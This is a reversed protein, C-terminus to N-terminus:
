PRFVAELQIAVRVDYSARALRAPEFVLNRFLADMAYWTKRDSTPFRALATYRSAPHRGSTRGLWFSRENAALTNGFQDPTL